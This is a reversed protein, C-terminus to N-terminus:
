DKLQSRLLLEGAKESLEKAHLVAFDRDSYDITRHIEKGDATVVVRHGFEDSVIMFEVNAMVGM